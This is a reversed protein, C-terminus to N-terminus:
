WFKWLVPNQFTALNRFSWFWIHWLKWLVSNPYAMLNWLSVEFPRPSILFNFRTFPCNFAFIVHIGYIFPAINLTRRCKIRNAIVSVYITRPPSYFFCRIVSPVGKSVINPGWVCMMWNEDFMNWSCTLFFVENIWVNKNVTFIWKVVTYIWIDLNLFTIRKIM